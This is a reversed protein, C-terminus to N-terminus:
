WRNLIARDIDPQNMEHFRDSEIYGMKFKGGVDGDVKSTDWLTQAVLNTLDKLTMDNKKYHKAFKYYALMPKGDIAFGEKEYRLRFGEGSSMRYCRPIKFKGDKTKDLGGIVFAFNPKFSPHSPPATQEIAEQRCFTAFDETIATVGRDTIRRTTKYREIAYQALGSDGATLVVVHKSLEVLKDGINIEVRISQTDITERSDAGVVVFDKGQAAIILTM